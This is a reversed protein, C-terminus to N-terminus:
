AIGEQGCVQGHGPVFLADKGFGAFKELTKRWASMEADFAVPYWANFLLDGTFTINQELVRVVVDSPTHGPYTEIVAKVGGLDVTIPLKAPDLPRNPLSIITADVAGYLLKAAGLDGEARQRRVADTAERAAKEFPAFLPAHDQGQANGYREVMLPAAKAHAWVPIGQAGYFANGFSHDFHYHSDVAGHVPVQSVLRLAELEFAAGAPQNHGEVILAAESGVSFGGNSLTQPGKSFDSITAYVGPGIRRVSAFGKDLLPAEAVRPDQAIGEALARLPITKALVLAAGFCSAGALFERRTLFTEM